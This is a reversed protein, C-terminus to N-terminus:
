YQEGRKNISNEDNYEKENTANGTTFEYGVKFGSQRAKPGTVVRYQSNDRQFERNQKMM